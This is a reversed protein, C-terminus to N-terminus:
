VTTQCVLCTQRTQDAACTELSVPPTVPAFMDAKLGVNTGACSAFNYVRQRRLRLFIIPSPAHLSIYGKKAAENELTKSVENKNRLTGGSWCIVSDM